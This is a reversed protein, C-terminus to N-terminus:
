FKNNENIFKKFKRKSLKKKKFLEKINDIQELAAKYGEEVMEEYGDKKSAKFRKTDPKILVDAYIYGKVVNSKMLIRISCALIDVVKTSDTGYTRSPNIDIAVVYDCNHLKLVNSPLTNTLGGDSLIKDEFIVPAFIGPVACSGAVAKALNGQSIHLEETTKMDVTVAYFEKKLDKIDIDGLERIIVNELGETKSPMFILKSSRIEKEKVNKGIEYLQDATYGACYFAGVLSGVSTGAVADFEIGHEEFAKLAGIHAFGRTGGGGLALGIKVKKKKFFLM